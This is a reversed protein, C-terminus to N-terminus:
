WVMGYWVVGYGVMGYWVVGYGVMGYGMMILIIIITCAFCVPVTNNCYFRDTTSWWFHMPSACAVICAVSEMQVQACTLIGAMSWKFKIVVQSNYLPSRSICYSNYVPEVTNCYYLDSKLCIVIAAVCLSLSAVKIYVTLDRAM